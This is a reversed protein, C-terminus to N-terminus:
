MEIYLITILLYINYDGFPVTDDLIVNFDEKKYEYIGVLDFVDESRILYVNHYIVGDDIYKKNPRGITINIDHNYLNILYIPGDYGIDFEKSRKGKNYKITKNIKSSVM